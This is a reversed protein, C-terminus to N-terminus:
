TDEQVVHLHAVVRDFTQVQDLAAEAWLIAARLQQALWTIGLGLVAFLLIEIIDALRETADHALGLFVMIGALISLATAIAGAFLGGFRACVMVALTFLIFTSRDELVGVIGPCRSRLRSSRYV